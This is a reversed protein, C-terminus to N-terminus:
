VCSCAEARTRNERNRREQAEMAAAEGPLDEDVEDPLLLSDRYAEVQFGRAKAKQFECEKAHGETWAEDDQFELNFDDFNTCLSEECPSIQLCPLPLFANQSMLVHGSPLQPM